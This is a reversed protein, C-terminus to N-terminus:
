NNLLKFERKLLQCGKNHLNITHMASINLKKAIETWTENQGNFYRFNFIKKIRKDPITSLIKNIHEKTDDYTSEDFKNLNLNIVDLDKSELGTELHNKALYTIRKLCFFRTFHGVWTSFKTKRGQKYTKIVEGMVFYKEKIIEEYKILPSKKSYKSCVDFFLKEHRNMLEQFADSSNNNRVLKLLAPDSLETVKKPIKPM